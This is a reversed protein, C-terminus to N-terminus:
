EGRHLPVNPDFEDDAIDFFSGYLGIERMMEVVYNVTVEWVYGCRAETEEDGICVWEEGKMLTFAVIRGLKQPSVEYAGFNFTGREEAYWIADAGNRETRLRVKPLTFRGALPGRVGPAPRTRDLRAAEAFLLDIADRTQMVVCDSVDNLGDPVRGVVDRLSKAADRLKRVEEAGALTPINDDWEEGQLDDWFRGTRGTIRLMQLLYNVKMVTRDPMTITETGAMLAAALAEGYVGPGYGGGTENDHFRGDHDGYFRAEISM